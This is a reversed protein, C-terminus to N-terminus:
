GIVFARRLVRKKAAPLPFSGTQLERIGYSITPFLRRISRRCSAKDLSAKRRIRLMAPQPLNSKKNRCSFYGFSAAEPFALRAGGTASLSFSRPAATSLHWPAKDGCASTPCRLRFANHQVAGSKLGGEGSFGERGSRTLNPSPHRHSSFREKFETPVPRGFPGAPSPYPEAYRVPSNTHRVGIM